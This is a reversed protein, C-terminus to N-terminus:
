FFNGVVADSTLIKAFGWGWSGSMWRCPMVLRVCQAYAVNDAKSMEQMENQSYGRRQANDNQSSIHCRKNM